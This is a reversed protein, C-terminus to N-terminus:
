ELLKVRETCRGREAEAYGWGQAAGGKKGSSSGLWRRRRSHSDGRDLLAEGEARLPGAAQDGHGQMALEPERCGPDCLASPSTVSERRPLTLFLCVEEPRRDYANLNGDLRRKM